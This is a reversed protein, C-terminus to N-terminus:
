LPSSSQKKDQASTPPLSFPTPGELLAVGEEEGVERTELPSRRAESTSPRPWRVDKWFFFNSPLSALTSFVFSLPSPPFSERNWAEKMGHGAGPAFSHVFLERGVEVLMNKKKRATFCLGKWEEEWHNAKADVAVLWSRWLSLFFEAKDAAEESPTELGREKRQAKGVVEEVGFLSRLPGENRRPKEKGGAPQLRPPPLLLPLLLLLRLLLLLLLLLLLSHGERGELPRIKGERWYCVPKLPTIVASSPLLIIPYQKAGALIKQKLCLSM